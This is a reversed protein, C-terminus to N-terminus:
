IKQFSKSFIKLNMNNIIIALAIWYFVGNFTSFFSGTTQIPFFFIILLGINILIKVDYKNLLSKINNFVLYIIILCFPLFMLLGGESLIEYYLNHPHTNCRKDAYKSDINEYKTLTCNKRFTKVGSGFIKNDKFIEYATLFHAGYRSDWFTNLNHALHDNNKKRYHLETSFGLQLVTQDFYKKFSSEDFKMFVTVVAILSLILIIKHKIQAKFFIIFFTTALLSIFFASREQTLFITSMMLLLYLLYINYNKTYTILFPIGLFFLKSLYAGVVYEDGFPGSLRKGHATSYENGFLDFGVGYQILVDFTVFLILYFLIKFYDKRYNSNGLFLLFALFFILYKLIGLSAKGSLYLDSSLINNIFFIIFIFFLLYVFNKNFQIKGKLLLYIFIIDVLILNVNLAFNGIIITFPVFIILWKYALNLNIKNPYLNLTKLKFGLNSSFLVLSM